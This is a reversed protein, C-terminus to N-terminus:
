ARGLRSAGVIRGELFAVFAQVKRSYRRNPVYASYGCVIERQPTM